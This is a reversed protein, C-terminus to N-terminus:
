PLCRKPSIVAHNAAKCLEGCLWYLFDLNYIGELKEIPNGDKGFLTSKYDSTDSKHTHILKAKRLEAESFHPAYFEPNFITHGDGVIKGDAIAEKTQKILNAQSESPTHTDKVNVVSGDLYSFVLRGLYSKWFFDSPKAKNSDTHPTTM